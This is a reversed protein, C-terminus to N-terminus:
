DNSIYYGAAPLVVQPPDNTDDMKSRVTVFAIWKHGPKADPPTPDYPSTVNDHLEAMDLHDRWITVDAAERGMWTIVSGVGDGHKVQVNVLETPRKPEVDHKLILDVTDSMRQKRHDYILEVRDVDEASKIYFRTADLEAFIWKSTSAFRDPVPQSADWSGTGGRLRAQQLTAFSTIDDRRVSQLTALSTPIPTPDQLNKTAEEVFKTINNHHTKASRAEALREALTLPTHDSPKGDPLTHYDYMRHGPKNAASFIKNRENHARNHAKEHEFLFHDLEAATHLTVTESDDSTRLTVPEFATGPETRYRRLISQLVSFKSAVFGKIVKGSEHPVDVASANNTWDELVQEFSGQIRRGSRHNLAHVIAIENWQLMEEWTPKPMVNAQAPLSFLGDRDIGLLDMWVAQQNSVYGPGMRNEVYEKNLFGPPNWPYAEWEGDTIRPVRSTWLLGDWQRVMPLADWVTRSAVLGKDFLYSIYPVKLQMSAWMDYYPTADWPRFPVDKWFHPITKIVGPNIPPAIQDPDSM